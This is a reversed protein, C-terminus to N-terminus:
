AVTLSNFPCDMVRDLQPAFSEKAEPLTIHNMLLKSMLDGTWSFLSCVLTLTLLTGQIWELPHMHEGFREIASRVNIYTRSFYFM